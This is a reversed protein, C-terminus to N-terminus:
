ALFKLFIMSYAAVNKGDNGVNFTLIRIEGAQKATINERSGSCGCILLTLIFCKLFRM